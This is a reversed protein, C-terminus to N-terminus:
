CGHPMPPSLVRLRFIFFRAWGLSRKLRTLKLRAVLKRIRKTEISSVFLCMYISYMAKWASSWPAISKLSGGSVTAPSFGTDLMSCNISM